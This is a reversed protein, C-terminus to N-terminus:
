VLLADAYGKANDLLQRNAAFLLSFKAFFYLNSRNM